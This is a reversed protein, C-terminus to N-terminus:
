STTLIIKGMHVGSEMREHAKPAEELPFTSDVITKVRGTALFPLVHERIEDAINSKETLSRPRLTSGTLTLRRRMIRGFNVEAVPGGLCAISIHKGRDALIELNKPIYSGGVIDLVMDVGRGETESKIREAFDQDRYNIAVHAGLEQCFAVKTPSGATTFVKAGFVHALQIATSGIGSSGGHILISQGARLRGEMFVNAWVTFFTEPIGAAETDSLNEPVAICTAEDAVAYTAYGGGPVLAMVRMGIHLSQIAPGLAVVEGAVELGPWTPAGKPPPYLGQRQMVDPRNIGAAAVKILVQRPGPTPTDIEKPTLASPEGPRDIIVALMRQPIETSDTM